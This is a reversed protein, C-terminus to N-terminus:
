CPFPRGRVYNIPARSFDIIREGFVTRANEPRGSDVGGMWRGSSIGHLEQGGAPAGCNLCNKEAAIAVAVTFVAVAAVSKIIRLTRPACAYCNVATTKEQVHNQKKKHECINKTLTKWKNKRFFTM